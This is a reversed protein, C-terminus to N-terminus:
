KCHSVRFFLNSKSQLINHGQGLSSVRMGTGTFSSRMIGQGRGPHGGTGFAARWFLRMTKARTTSFILPTRDNTKISIYFLALDHPNGQIGHTAIM